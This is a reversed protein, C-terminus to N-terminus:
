LSDVLIPLSLNPGVVLHTNQRPTRTKSNDKLLSNVTNM